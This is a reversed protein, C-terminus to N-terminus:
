KRTYEIKMMQVEKDEEDIMFMTFTTHDKDKIETVSRFKIEKGDPGPGTMTENFTKGDKSFEGVTNYLAPGMSDIWVGTYKKQFPNYGTMARGKFPQGFFESTFESILFFGGIDLKASMAGTTEIPEDIGPFNCVMKADWEGEMQKLLEHQPGPKPFEEQADAAAFTFTAAIAALAITLTKMPKGKTISPRFLHRITQSVATLIDRQNPPIM